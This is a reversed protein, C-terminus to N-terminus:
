RVARKKKGPEDPEEIPEAEINSILRTLLGILQSAEQASFDATVRNWFDVIPPIHMRAVAHGQPTLKLYAVRRDVKCPERKVLGRRVLQDVLRSTAGADHNLHRALDASTRAVGERLGMLSIWQTFTLEQDAFIAEAHPTTLNQVRRTLYGLSQHCSFNEARFYPKPM